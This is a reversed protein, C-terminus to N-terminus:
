LTRSLVSLVHAQSVSLAKGAQASLQNRYATLDQQTDSIAGRKRADEAHALKVLLAHAVGRETCYYSTLQRLSGFTFLYGPDGSLDAPTIQINSDVLEALPGSGHYVSGFLATIPNNDLEQITVAGDQNMDLVNFVTGQVDPNSLFRRILPIARANADLLPVATEAGFALNRVPVTEDFVEPTSPPTTTLVCSRDTCYIPHPGAEHTGDALLVIPGRSACIEFNPWQGDSNSTTTLRYSLSFGGLAAAYSLSHTAPDVLRSDFLATFGPDALGSPYHGNQQFYTNMNGCITTTLQKQM